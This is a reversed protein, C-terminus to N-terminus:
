PRDQAKESINLAGFVADALRAALEYAASTDLNPMIEGLEEALVDKVRDRKSNM